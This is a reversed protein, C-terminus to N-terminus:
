KERPRPTSTTTISCTSGPAQFGGAELFAHLDLIEDKTLVNVLGAPM